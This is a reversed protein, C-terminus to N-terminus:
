AVGGRASALQVLGSHVAPLPGETCWAAAIAKHRGVVSAVGQPSRVTVRSLAGLGLRHAADRSATALERSARARRDATAGSMGQVLATNGQIFAAFEVGQLSVLGKLAPRVRQLRQTELDPTSQAESTENATRLPGGRTAQELAASFPLAASARASADRWSAELDRDGPELELLRALAKRKDAFAGVRSALRAMLRWCREEHPAEACARLTFEWAREGDCRLGGELFAHGAALALSYTADPGGNDASWRQGVQEARVYRGAEIHAEVLAAWLAPRPAETLEQELERVRADLRARVARALTSRLGEHDPHLELAEHCIAEVRAHDGARISEQALASYNEASPDEAVRRAASRIGKGPFLRGWLGKM